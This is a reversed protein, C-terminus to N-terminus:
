VLLARLWSKDQLTPPIIIGQEGICYVLCELTAAQAGPPKVALQVAIGPNGKYVNVSHLQFPVGM